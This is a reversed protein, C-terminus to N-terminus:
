MQQIKHLQAPMFQQQNMSVWKGGAFSTYAIARSTQRDTLLIVRFRTCPNPHFTAHRCIDPCLRFLWSKLGIRIMTRIWSGFKEMEVPYRYPRIETFNLPDIAVPAQVFQNSESSSRSGPVPNVGSKKFKLPIDSSTISPNRHFKIRHLNSLLAHM